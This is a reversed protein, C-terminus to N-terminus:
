RLGLRNKADDILASVDDYADGREDETRYLDPVPCMFLLDSVDPYLQRCGVLFYAGALMYKRNKPTVGCYEKKAYYRLKIQEGTECNKGYLFIAACKGKGYCMKELRFYFFGEAPYRYERHEPFTPAFSNWSSCMLEHGTEPVCFDKIYKQIGQKVFGFSERLNAYGVVSRPVKKLEENEKELDAIRRKHEMIVASAVADGADGNVLLLQIGERQKVNQKECFEAFALYETATVRISLRKTLPEAHSQGVVNEPVKSAVKNRRHLVEEVPIKTLRDYIERAPGYLDLADEYSKLDGLIDYDLEFFYRMWAIQNQYAISKVMYEDELWFFSPKMGAEFFETTKQCEHSLYWLLQGTNKMKSRGVFVLPDGDPVEAYLAFVRYVKNDRKM